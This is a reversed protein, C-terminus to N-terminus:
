DGCFPMAAGCGSATSRPHADGESCVLILLADAIDQDRLLELEVVQLPDAGVLDGQAAIWGM